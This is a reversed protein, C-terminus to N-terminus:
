DNENEEYRCKPCKYSCTKVEEKGKNEGRSEFETKYDEDTLEQFCQKCSHDQGDCDDMYRPCSNCGEQGLCKDGAEEMSMSM